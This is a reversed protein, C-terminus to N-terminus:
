KAKAKYAKSSRPAKKLQLDLSTRYQICGALFQPWAPVTPLPDTKEPLLAWLQPHHWCLEHMNSDRHERIGERLKRVEAILKERPMSDLDLDISKKM